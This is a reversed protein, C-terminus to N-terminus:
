RVARLQSLHARRTRDAKDQEEADESEGTIAAPNNHVGTAPTQTFDLGLEEALSNAAAIERYVEELDRGRSRAIEQPSRLGFSVEDIRAKVERLPDISEMGPPQWDSKLWPAPNAYYGPLSLRGTLVAMDMFERLTPLCFHRIHRVCIPRLQQAFDNRVTRSTSYNMGAYDGSLLEYPVGTSVSLMTLVLKVMPPFNSGPRPNSAIEIDEGPNLYEIIANEMTEIQQDTDTDTEVRGYQREYANPTKVFTLYKAAMKAADMETDMYDGLDHAVLVGAVFPSIGRLQGPRLTQFHHMVRDAPIRQAKGWGDPDSFHYAMIEGTATNYEIGQDVENAPSAAQAHLDTLWDAEYIQLAFPLYASKNRPQTKVLLFEGTEVDQRKALQMLEYYHLKRAVDAEDAWFSFADEIQQIARKNLGGDPFDVRSQFLIGQGVTYDVMVNVARAFYPFDRVLQRVRNRVTPGSNKLITNVNADTASWAGTMRNTKSAAYADSRLRLKALKSRYFHRQIARQPSFYAIIRDALNKM